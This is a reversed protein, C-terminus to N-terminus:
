IVHKFEDVVGIFKMEGKKCIKCKQVLRSSLENICREVNEKIEKVAEKLDKEARKLKEKCSNALIGFSRIRVFRKPVIHLLFRRIFENVKLKMIKQKKDDKSDRYSFSVIGNKEELIRANSIAVRHSYLGLYKMVREPSNFPSKAYVVWDKEYVIKSLNKWQHETLNEPFVLTTQNKKLYEMFKGKWVQSLAKVPFLFKKQAKKWESGSLGGASVICHIHPHFELNQGWTHLISVIGIEGGIWKPDSGFTKLTKSTIKLM